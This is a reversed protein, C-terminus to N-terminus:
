ARVPEETAGQGLALLATSVIQPANLGAEDYMDYPKAQDIFAAPLMM